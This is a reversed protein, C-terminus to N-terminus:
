DYNNEKSKNVIYVVIGAARAQKVMNQTGRGGHLALVADPRGEVIMQRNRIPGAARGHANWDAPYVECPFGNIKAYEGAIADAGKAGGHIITPPTMFITGIAKTIKEHALQVDSFDRGGCVLLRM